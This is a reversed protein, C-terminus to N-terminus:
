QLISKIISLSADENAMKSNSKLMTPMPTAPTVGKKGLSTSSQTSDSTMNHGHTHQHQRNASSVSSALTGSDLYIFSNVFYETARFYNHVQKGQALISKEDDDVLGFHRYKLPVLEDDKFCKLFYAREYIRMNLQEFFEVLDGPLVRMKDLNPRECAEIRVEYEAILQSLEKAQLNSGNVVTKIKIQTENLWRSIKEIFQLDVLHYKFKDQFQVIVKAAEDLHRKELKELEKLLVIESNDILTAMKELKKKHVDIEEPSFNGGSSFDSSLHM